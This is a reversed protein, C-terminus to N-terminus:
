GSNEYITIHKYPEIKYNEMFLIWKTCSIQETQFIFFNDYLYCMNLAHYFYTVISINKCFANNDKRQVAYKDITCEENQKNSM